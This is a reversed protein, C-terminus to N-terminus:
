LDFRERAGHERVVVGVHRQVAIEGRNASVFISCNVKKDASRGALIEADGSESCAHISRATRERELKKSKKIAHPGAPHNPLVDGADKTRVSSPCKAGEEPPQFFEPIPPGVPDQVSLVEVNWLSAATHENDSIKSVRSTGCRYKKLAVAQRPM